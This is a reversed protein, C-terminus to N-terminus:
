HKPIPDAWQWVKARAKANGYPAIGAEMCKEVILNSKDVKWNAGMKAKEDESLTIKLQNLIRKQLKLIDVMKFVVLQHQVKLHCYHFERMNELGFNQRFGMGGFKVPKTIDYLNPSGSHKEEVLGHYRM